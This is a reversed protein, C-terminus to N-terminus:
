FDKTKNVHRKIYEKVAVRVLHGYSVGDVEALMKLDSVLQHMWVKVCHKTIGRATKYRNVSLQPLYEMSVVMGGKIREVGKVYEFRIPM